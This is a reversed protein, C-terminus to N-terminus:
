GPGMDRMSGDPQREFIHGGQRVRSPPVTPELRPATVPRGGPLTAPGPPSLPTTPALVAPATSGGEPAVAKNGYRSMYFQRMREPSDKAMDIESQMTDLVRNMTEGNFASNLLEAGHQRAADTVVNAGRAMVAAYTNVIAQLRTALERQDPNLTQNQFGVILQNFPLFGTRSADMKTIIPRALKMAGEAEIAASGMKAEQTSLTRQAARQGLTEAQIQVRQEPTVGAEEDQRAAETRVQKLIAGSQAGRGMNTLAQGGILNYQAATRRLTVPDLLEEGSESKPKQTLKVTPRFESTGKKTDFVYAGPVEKGTEPDIGTGPQIQYKSESAEREAKRAAEAERAEEKQRALEAQQQRREEVVGAQRRQEQMNELLDQDRREREADRSSQLKFHQDAQVMQADMRKIQADKYEKNLQFAREQQAQAAGYRTAEQYSQMGALGANGIAQALYPSRNAMLAFGATLLANRAQPSLNLLGHRGGGEEGEPALSVPGAGTHDAKASMGTGGYGVASYRPNSGDDRSLIANTNALYMPVTTGLVDKANGARAIPRGSFWISAAENFSGYKDMYGGFVRDFVTDQAKPDNLFQEPTMPKLSAARLYEPLESRMVQYRGLAQDGTRTRPGIENYRNGSEFTGIARRARELPVVGSGPSLSETRNAVSVPAAAMPSPTRSTLGPLPPAAGAPTEGPWAPPTSSALGAPVGVAGAWTPQALGTAIGPPVAAMPALGAPPTIDGEQAPGGEQYFGRAKLYHHPVHIGGGRALGAATFDELVGPGFDSPELGADLGAQIADNTSPEGLGLFNGLAGPHKQALGIASQAVQGMPNAQSGTSGGSRPPGAGHPIQVNGPIYSAGGMYPQPGVGYNLMPALGFPPAAGGGTQLGKREVRGGKDLFGLAATGLGLWPAYQNAAPPTTVTTGTGGMNSGVGTGIQALWSLQQYPYAQQQLYQMYPVNLGAQAMQQELGGYGLQASAGSLIDQLNATGLNGLGYAASLEVGQQAQAAGLAQQFGQAQLGAITPAESSAQQRALEAQAVGTRDNFLGGSTALGGMLQAQQEANLENLNGLTAQVVQQQYPNYYNQIQQASIPAAGQTLYGLAQNFYPQALGQANGITQGAAIQNPSLGAVLQGTYPVYPQNGVANARQMIQEYEAMVEPPPASTTQSTTSGKSGSGM